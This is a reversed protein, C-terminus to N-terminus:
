LLPERRGERVATDLPRPRYALEREARRSDMSVDLPRPVAPPADAQRAEEILSADLGLAAAVRLGLQHRSVREPGGLHFVGTQAGRLLAAAAIVVSEPDVPSRFQDSFLSLRRGARLAWTISESASGRRGHGRGLVLAVRAVAAGPHEALVALEGDLKTRAYHLLPQAAASEDSLARTGPFVLDTSLAVLRLGRRACERALTAPADTNIRRALEPERQCRDADALAASHLVVQPKVADLAAEISGPALLDVAVAALGPPPPAARVAAVVDMEEALLAALRGGLLGGAGTVLVRPRNSSLNPRKERAKSMSKESLAAAQLERAALQQVV